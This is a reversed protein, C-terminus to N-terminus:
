SGVGYIQDARYGPAGLDIRAVPGVVSVSQAGVPLVATVEAVVDDDVACYVYRRAALAAEPDVDDVLVM